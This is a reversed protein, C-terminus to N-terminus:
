EFLSVVAGIAVIGLVFLAFQAVSKKFETEKSLEPLLDVSAIYIFGGAAVALLYPVSNEILSSFKFAILAGLVATLATLFNFFLAKGKSMGGYILVSFDSIEQPIEHLIIALTTAIGLPISALFSASIIVGDLFNHIGDGILNMYTYTHVKYGEKGHRHHHHWFIFREIAFFMLFGVIVFVFPNSIVEGSEPLLDLFAVGLMSGAAFSVLYFLIKDLFNKKFSLSLIGVLSIISVTFVAALIWLLLEM